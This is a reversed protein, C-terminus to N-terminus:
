DLIIMWSFGADVYTNSTTRVFINVYNASASYSISCDLNQNGFTMTYNSTGLNHVITYNGTAGKAPTFGSNGSLTTGTSDLRGHYLNGNNTLVTKGDMTAGSALTDPSSASIVSYGNASSNVKVTISEYQALDISTAGDITDTGARAVTVVAAGINAITVEFDGTDAGAMTAADGLTITFPTTAHNCEIVSRNDAEVVTYAATKQAVPRKLNDDGETYSLETGKGARTTLTPM